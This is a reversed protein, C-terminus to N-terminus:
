SGDVLPAGDTLTTLSVSSSTGSGDSGADAEFPTGTDIGNYNTAGASTRGTTGSWTIVVDATTATPNVLYYLFSGSTSAAPDPDIRLRTLAEAGGNWTIGTIDFSANGARWAGGVILITTGADVTHGSITLTPDAATSSSTASGVFAIAM